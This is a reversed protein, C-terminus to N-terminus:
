PQKEMKPLQCPPSASEGTEVYIQYPTCNDPTKCEHSFACADCPPDPQERIAQLLTDADLTTQQKGGTGALKQMAQMYQQSYDHNNV